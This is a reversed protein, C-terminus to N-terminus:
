KYDDRTIGLRSMQYLLTTRTIGLRSAAGRKGGVIGNTEKLVRLIYEREVKRLGDKADSLNGKGYANLMANLLVKNGDTAEQGQGPLLPAPDSRVLLEVPNQEPLVPSVKRSSHPSLQMDADDIKLTSGSSLIVAREIFNELERVNGPWERSQLYEMLRSSIHEINRGIKRSCRGVFYRVLLPIDEQRERLPPVFIPFISIRYYLDSRFERNEIMAPLHRNTAAILRFDSHITRNSGLPEFEREQLVRLLKPQIELPLEGVEDLFLTGEHALEVRGVRSSIAGTYAGKVHGFLESEFLCTPVAACNLTVLPRSRRLSLDHIARAILEKGTGSEGIILVTSDTAAVTEVDRLLKLIARSEGIFGEFGARTRVREALNLNERALEDRLQSLERYAVANAIAVSLPTAIERLLGLEYPSFSERDSHSTTLVGLFIGHASLPVLCATRSRLAEPASPCMSRMDDSGIVCPEGNELLQRRCSSLIPTMNSQRGAADPLLHKPELCLGNTEADYLHLCLLDIGTLRLFAQSVGDILVQLDLTSAASRMVELLIRLHNREETLEVKSQKASEYNLANDVSIAVQSAVQSIFHIERENYLGAQTSGLELTGLKRYPTTLPVVCLSKLEASMWPGLKAMKPYRRFFEAVDMRFPTQNRWVDWGPGDQFTVESLAAEPVPTRSGVYSLTDLEPEYLALYLCDFQVYSQLVGALAEFVSSLGINTTLVRVVNSILQEENPSGSKEHQPAM